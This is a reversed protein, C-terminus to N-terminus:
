AEIWKIQSDFLLKGWPKQAGVLIGAMYEDNSCMTAVLLKRNLGVGFFKRADFYNGSKMPSYAFISQGRFLELLHNTVLALYRPSCPMAAFRPWQELLKPMYSFPNGRGITLRQLRRYFSPGAHLFYCPIGKAEAFFAAAHNVAYLGNYLLIRDPKSAQVIRRMAKVSRVTNHLEVHYQDWELDNFETDFKKHHLIVQYLAIRGVPVGECQLDYFNERDVKELIQDVDARDELTLIEDLTPGRLNLGKRLLRDNKKCRDCIGQREVAPTDPTMKHAAMPVCFKDFAQGCSVYTVEHGHQQLSEAVLAEPFAHIWLESHPAFFLIKM